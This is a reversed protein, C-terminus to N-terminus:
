LLGRPTSGARYPHRDHNRDIAPEILRPTAQRAHERVAVVQRGFDDNDIVARGLRAHRTPQTLKRRLPRDRQEAVFDIPAEDGRDVPAHCRGTIAVHHQEVAIRFYWGVPQRSERTM